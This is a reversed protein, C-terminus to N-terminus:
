GHNWSEPEITAFAATTGADPSALNAATATARQQQRACAHHIAAGADDGADSVAGCDFKLERNECSEVAHVYPGWPLNLSLVLPRSPRFTPPVRACKM